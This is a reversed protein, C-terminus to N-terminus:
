RKICPFLKDLNEIWGSSRAIIEISSGVGRQTDNFMRLKKSSSLQM